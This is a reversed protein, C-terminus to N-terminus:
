GVSNNGNHKAELEKMKDLAAERDPFCDALDEEYFDCLIPVNDVDTRRETIIFPRTDADSDSLDGEVISCIKAIVTYEALSFEFNEKDYRFWTQGDIEMQIKNRSFVNNKRLVGYFKSNLPTSMLGKFHHDTVAAKHNFTEFDERVHDAGANFAERYPHKEAMPVGAMEENEIELEKVRRLLFKVLDSELDVDFWTM